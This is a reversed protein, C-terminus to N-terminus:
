ADNGDHGAGTILKHQVKAVEYELLSDLACYRLLTPWDCKFVRNRAYGGPEAAELYPKVARDYEPMGLHVFAQFKISTVGKRNDLLHAALMTDHWWNRVTVGLKTRIWRHEFKMNSAIKPVDQRAFLRRMQRSTADTWPFAFCGGKWAVSCAAIAAGGEPKLGTTELDFALPGIRDASALAVLRVAAENPDLVVEARSEYDPPSSAWPRTGCKDLAAALHKKFWLKFAPNYGSGFVHTPCYTPCVWANWPRAPIVWGPWRDFEGVNPKWLHPLVGQCAAPGLLVIVEPALEQIRALLLPRCNAVPDNGKGRCAQATTIWCDGALDFGNAALTEKLLLMGAGLAPRGAADGAESPQSGILLVRRNGRGYPTMKPTHCRKLLGCDGCKPATSQPPGTAAATLSLFGM